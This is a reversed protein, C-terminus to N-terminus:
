TMFYSLLHYKKVGEYLQDEGYFKSEVYYTISTTYLLYSVEGFDYCILFLM